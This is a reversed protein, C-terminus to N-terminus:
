YLKLYFMEHIICKVLLKFLLKINYIKYEMKDYKIKLFIKSAGEGREQSIESDALSLTIM